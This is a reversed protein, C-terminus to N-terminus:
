ENEISAEHTGTPFFAGHESQYGDQMVKVIKGDVIKIDALTSRRTLRGAASQVGLSAGRLKQQPNGGGIEGVDKVGGFARIAATEMPTANYGKISSLRAIAESPSSAGFVTEQGMANVYRINASM